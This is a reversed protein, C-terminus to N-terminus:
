EHGDQLGWYWVDGQKFTKVTGEKARRITRDSFGNAEAAEMIESVRKPGGALLDRLWEKAQTRAEPKPGRKEGTMLDDARLDVPDSWSVRGPHGNLYYSLGQPPACLNCKGPLLLRRERTPDDPDRTVHLVSRALGSFAVSGMIMDDAFNATGKRTHAVIAVAIDREDAVKALPALLERVQNDKHNDVKGPTYSGVPDIILLRCDKMGDLAESIHDLDQLTIGRERLKTGDHYSVGQLAKIRECDAGAANLRPRVTDNLNDECVMLLVGGQRCVQGDPWDLGRSVRAALDMTLFSKSEGPRGAIVTIRGAPIRGYWLWDVARPEVEHMNVIIPRPAPAVPQGNPSPGSLAREIIEDEVVPTM